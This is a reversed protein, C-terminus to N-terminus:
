VAVPDEQGDVADGCACLFHPGGPGWQADATFLFVTDGLRDCYTTHLVSEIERRDPAFARRVANTRDRQRELRLRSAWLEELPAGRRKVEQHETWAVVLQRYHTEFIQKLVAPVTGPWRM